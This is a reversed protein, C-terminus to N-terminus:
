RRGCHLATQQTLKAQTLFAPFCAFTYFYLFCHVIKKQIFASAPKPFFTVGCVRGENYFIHM